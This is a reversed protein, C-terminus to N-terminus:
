TLKANEDSKENMVSQEAEEDREIEYYQCVDRHRSTDLLDCHCSRRLRNRKEQRQQENAREGEKKNPDMTSVRDNRSWLCLSRDAAGVTALVITMRLSYTTVFRGSVSTASGKGIEVFRHVQRFAQRQESVLVVLITLLEDELDSM